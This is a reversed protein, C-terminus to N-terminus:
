TRSTSTTSESLRMGRSGPRRRSVHMGIFGACGTVLIKLIRGSRSLSASALLVANRSPSNIEGPPIRPIKSSGKPLTQAGATKPVAQTRSTTSGRNLPTWPGPM